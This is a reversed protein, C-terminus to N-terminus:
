GEGTVLADPEDDDLEDPAAEVEVAEVEAVGGNVFVSM